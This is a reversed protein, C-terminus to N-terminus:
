RARESGGSEASAELPFAEADLVAGSDSPEQEVSSGEQPREAAIRSAEAGYAGPGCEVLAPGKTLFQPKVHRLRLPPLQEVFRHRFFEPHNPDTARRVYERYALVVPWGERIVEMSLGRNLRSQVFGRPPTPLLRSPFSAPSRLNNPLVAVLSGACFDEPPPLSSDTPPAASLAAAGPRAVQVPADVAAPAPVLAHPGAPDAISPQLLM